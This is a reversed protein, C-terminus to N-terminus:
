NEINFEDIYYECNNPIKKGKLKAVALYVQGNNKFIGTLLFQGDDIKKIRPFLLDTKNKEVHPLFQLECNLQFTITFGGFYGFFIQANNDKIIGDKNIDTEFGYLNISGYADAQKM